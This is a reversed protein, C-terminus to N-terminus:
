RVCHGSLGRSRRAQPCWSREFSHAPVPRNEDITMLGHVIVPELNAIGHRGHDLRRIHHDTLLELRVPIRGSARCAGQSTAGDNGWSKTSALHRASIEPSLGSAALCKEPVGTLLPVGSIIADALEDRLDQRSAEQKSFKNFM